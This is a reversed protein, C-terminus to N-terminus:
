TRRSEGHYAPTPQSVQREQNITLTNNTPHMRPRTRDEGNRSRKTTPRYIISRCAPLTSIFANGTPHILVTMDAPTTNITTTHHAGYARSFTRGHQTLSRDTATGSWPAYPQPKQSLFMRRLKGVMGSHRSKVEM